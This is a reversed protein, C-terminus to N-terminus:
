RAYVEDAPKRWGTKATKQGRMFTGILTRYAAKRYM